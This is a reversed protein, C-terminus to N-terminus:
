ARPWAIRRGDDARIHLCDDEVETVTGACVAHEEADFWTCRDGDISLMTSRWGGFLGREIGLLEALADGANVDDM